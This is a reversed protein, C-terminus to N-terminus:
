AVMGDKIMEEIEVRDLKIKKLQGSIMEIPYIIQTEKDLLSMTVELNVIASAWNGNSLYKGGEVYSLNSANPTISDFRVETVQNVLNLKTCIEQITWKMLEVADIGVQDDNEYKWFKRNWAQQQLEPQWEVEISEAHKIAYKRFEERAMTKTADKSPKWNTDESNIIGVEKHTKFFTAEYGTVTEAVAIRNARM